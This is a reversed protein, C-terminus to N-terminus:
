CLLRITSLRASPLPPPARTSFTADVSRTLPADVALAVLGALTLEQSSAVRAQALLGSLPAPPANHFCGCGRTVGSSKCCCSPRASALTVPAVKKSKKPCCSARAKSASRKGCGALAPVSTGLLAVLLLYVVARSM